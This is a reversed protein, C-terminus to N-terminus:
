DITPPLPVVPRPRPCSADLGIPIGPCLSAAAASCRWHLHSQDKSQAFLPLRGGGAFYGCSYLHPHLYLRGRESCSLLLVVLELSLIRFAHTGLDCRTVESPAHLAHHDIATLTLSTGPVLRLPWSLIDLDRNIDCGDLWKAPSQYNAELYAYTDGLM